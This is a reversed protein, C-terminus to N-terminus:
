GHEKDTVWGLAGCNTMRVSMPKGTRPMVPVYLPAQRVIERIDELLARQEAITLAMPVHCVGKPLIEM